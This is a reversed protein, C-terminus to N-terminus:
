DVLGLLLKGVMLTAASVIVIITPYPNEIFLRLETMDPNMLQFVVAWIAAAVLAIFSIIVLALGIIAKINNKM